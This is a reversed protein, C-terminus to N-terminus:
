GGKHQLARRKTDTRALALNAGSIRWRPEDLVKERGVTKHGMATHLLMSLEVRRTVSLEQEPQSYVAELCRYVALFVALNNISYM